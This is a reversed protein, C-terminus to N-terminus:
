KINKIVLNHHVNNLYSLAQNWTEPCDTTLKWFHEHDTKTHRFVSLKILLNEEKAATTGCPTHYHALRTVSFRKGRCTPTRCNLIIWDFIYIVKYGIVIKFWIQFTKDESTLYRMKCHWKNKNLTSVVDGTKMSVAGPAACTPLATVCLTSCFCLPWTMNIFSVCFLVSSNFLHRSEWVLWCVCTLLVSRQIHYSYGFIPCIPCSSNSSCFSLIFSIYFKFLIFEIIISIHYYIYLEILIIVNFLLIDFLIFVLLSGQCIQRVVM